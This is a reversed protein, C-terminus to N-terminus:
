RRYFINEYKAALSIVWTEVHDDGPTEGLYGPTVRSISLFRRGGNLAPYKDLVHEEGNVRVPQGELWRGLTELWEKIYIKRAENPAAERFGVAFPYLCVQRVKGTVSRVEEEIAAGSGPYMGLGGDEQLSAFMIQEDAARGPFRNVLDRLVTSVWWEGDADYGLPTKKKEAM